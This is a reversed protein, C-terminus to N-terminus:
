KTYFFKEHRCIPCIKNELKVSCPMCCVTACKQCYIHEKLNEEFCIPCNNENNLKRQLHLIYNRYNDKDSLMHFIRSEISKVVLIYYLKRTDPKNLHEVHKFYDENKTRRDIFIITNNEQDGSVIDCMESFGKSSINIIKFKPFKARIFEADM